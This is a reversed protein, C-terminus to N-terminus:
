QLVWYGNSDRVLTGLLINDELLAIARDAKECELISFAAAPDHGQFRVTKPEGVGDDAFMLSFTRM